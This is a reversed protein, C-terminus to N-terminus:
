ISITTEKEKEKKRPHGLSSSIMPSLLHYGETPLFLECRKHAPM